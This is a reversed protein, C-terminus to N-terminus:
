RIVGLNKLKMRMDRLMSRMPILNGVQYYLEMGSLHNTKPNFFNDLFNNQGNDIKQYVSPVVFDHCKPPINGEGNEYASIKRLIDPDTISTTMEKMVKNKYGDALLKKVNQSIIMSFIGVFSNLFNDMRSDGNIIAGHVVKSLPNKNVRALVSEPRKEINMINLDFFSIARCDPDNSSLGSLWKFATILTLYINKEEEPPTISILFRLASIVESFNIKEQLKETLANRMSPNSILMQLLMSIAQDTINECNDPNALPSGSNPSAITIIGKIINEKFVYEDLYALYRAVLGGQSYGILIHLNGNSKLIDYYGTYNKTIMKSLRGPGCGTDWFVKYDVDKIGPFAKKWEEYYYERIPKLSPYKYEQDFLKGICKAPIPVFYEIDPMLNHPKNNNTLFFKRLSDNENKIDIRDEYNRRNGSEIEDWSFVPPDDGRAQDPKVYTVNNLLTGPDPLLKEAANLTWIKIRERM